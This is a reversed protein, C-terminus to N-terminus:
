LHGHEPQPHNYGRAGPTLSQPKRKEGGTKGYVGVVLHFDFEIKVNIKSNSKKYRIQLPSNAGVEGFPGLRTVCM